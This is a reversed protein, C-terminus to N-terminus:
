KILSQYSLWHCKLGTDVVDVTISFQQVIVDDLLPKQIFLVQQKIDELKLEIADDGFVVGGSAIAMDKLSNKRNDGFGPAKVACVQLGLKLRNLVLTTLAESEVDEAVILLPKRMQNAMELAPILAQVSSIKKESFVILCDQFECKAGLYFILVILKWFRAYYQLVDILITLLLHM